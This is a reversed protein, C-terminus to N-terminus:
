VCYCKGTDLSMAKLKGGWVCGADLAYINETDVKGLLSAWHGFILRENKTKRYPIDFWAKMKDTSLELSGTNVFDLKGDLDCFRMRTFSNAIFRLRDEGELNEDWVCPLDGYIHELFKLYDSGQLEKEVEGALSLAKQLDWAPYVGAHSLSYSLKKDCHLLPCFRLWELLEEVDEARLIEELTHTKLLRDGFHYLFLLHLEHNGLVVVKNKLDKVFRLVELSKSGRSILDGTFWLQYLILCPHPLPLLYLSSSILRPLSSPILYM